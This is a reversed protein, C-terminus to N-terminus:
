GVFRSKPSTHLPDLFYNFSIQIVAFMESTKDWTGFPKNILPWHTSACSPAVKSTSFGAVPSTIAVRAEAPSASAIAANSAAQATWSSHAAVDGRSREAIRDRAKSKT